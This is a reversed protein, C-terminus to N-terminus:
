TSRALASTHWAELGGRLACAQEFGHGAFYAAVDLSRDGTACAFVIRTDKPLSMYKGSDDYDLPEAEPFPAAAVEDPMRVDIFRVDAGAALWQRLTAAEVQRSSEMDQATLITRIVEPVDLLNHDKCVRALTDSPQYGCANCGGVHYRQFLARHAAPAIILIQEMTMDPRITQTPAATM